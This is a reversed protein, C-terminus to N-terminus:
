APKETEPEPEIRAGWRAELSDKMLQLERIQSRAREAEARVFACKTQLARLDAKRQSLEAETQAYADLIDQQRKQSEAFAKKADSIEQEMREVCKIRAQERKRAYELEKKAHQLECEMALMAREHASVTMLGFM